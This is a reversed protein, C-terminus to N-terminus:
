CPLCQPSTASDSITAAGANFTSGKDKRGANACSRGALLRPSRCSATTFPLFKTSILSANLALGVQIALATVVM